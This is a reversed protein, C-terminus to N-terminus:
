KKQIDTLFNAQKLLGVNQALRLGAAKNLFVSESM